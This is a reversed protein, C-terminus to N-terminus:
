GERQMFVRGFADGLGADRLFREVQSLDGRNGRQGHREIDDTIERMGVFKRIVSQDERFRESIKKQFSPIDGWSNRKIDAIYTQIQSSDGELCLVGPKGALVFGTLDYSPALNVLDNRKERTSLSPFYFWVRVLALERDDASSTDAAELESLLEPVKANLYDIAENLCDETRTPLHDAISDYARRRLWTPRVVSLSVYTPDECPESSEALPIVINLDISVDQLAHILVKLRLSIATAAPRSDSSVAAQLQEYALRGGASLTLEDDGSYMALLLEIYHLQAELQDPALAPAAVSVDSLPQYGM